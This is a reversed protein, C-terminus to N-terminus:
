IHILFSGHRIRGSAYYPKYPCSRTVPVDSVLPQSETQGFFLYKTAHREGLRSPINSALPVQDSQCLICTLQKRRTPEEIAPQESPAHTTNPSTEIGSM